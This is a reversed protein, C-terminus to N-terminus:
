TCAELKAIVAEVIAGRLDQDEGEGEGLGLHRSASFTKNVEIMVWSPGLRVSTLHKVILPGCDRWDGAWDPVKAQGRCQPEGAPPTGLLAGGVDFINAWGLLEALRRNADIGTGQM